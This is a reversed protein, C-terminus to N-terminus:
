RDRTGAVMAAVLDWDSPPRNEVVQYVSGHPYVPCGAAGLVFLRDDGAVLPGTHFPAPATLAAVDLDSGTSGCLTRLVHVQGPVDGECGAGNTMFSFRTATVKAEVIALVPWGAVSPGCTAPPSGSGDMAGGDGTAQVDQAADATWIADASSSDLSPVVGAGDVAAPGVDVTPSRASDVAVEGNDPASGDAAPGNDHAGSSCGAALLLTLPLGLLIRV